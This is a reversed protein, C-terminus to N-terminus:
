PSVITPGNHTSSTIESLGNSIMDKRPLAKAANISHVGVAPIGVREQERVGLGQGSPPLSQAM